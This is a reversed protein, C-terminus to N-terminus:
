GNSQARHLKEVILEKLDMARDKVSRAAVQSTLVSSVLKSAVDYKELRYAMSALLLNLTNEEMGCMPFNESAIAKIFGEYAQEYYALEQKKLEKTEASEEEGAAAIAELKGRYLWSLKLCEYAAESARGRKVQTCRMARRYRDFAEEYTYAYLTEDQASSDPKFSSLEQVLLKIQGGTLNEFYRNIATYGCKPCSSVDYKNTDIFAFRPRLDFDPDLRRARGSKLTRSRFSSDCVPCHVTKAFLFEVEEHVPAKKEPEHTEEAKNEAKKTEEPRKTEEKAPASKKLGSLLGM